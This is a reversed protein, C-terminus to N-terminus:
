PRPASVEEIQVLVRDGEVVAFDLQTTVSAIRHPLVLELVVYDDEIRDVTAPWMPTAAFLLYSCVLM